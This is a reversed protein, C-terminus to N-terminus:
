PRLDEETLWREINAGRRVLYASEGSVMRKTIVIADFWGSHNERSLTLARLRAGIKISERHSGKWQTAALGSPPLRREKHSFKRCVIAYRRQAVPSQEVWDYRSTSSM